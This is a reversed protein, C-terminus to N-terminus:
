LTQFWLYLIIIRLLWKFLLLGLGDEEEWGEKGCLVSTGNSAIKLTQHVREKTTWIHVQIDRGEREEVISIGKKEEAYVGGKYRDYLGMAEKYANM